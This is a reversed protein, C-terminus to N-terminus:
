KTETKFSSILNNLEQLENKSIESKQRISNFKDFLLRTEEETCGSKEALERYYIQPDQTTDIRHKTRIYDKFNEIKKLALDRFKNQELYLDAITKSYEYTQNKPPEVIPVPRQKRKGEFIIFLVAGILMFYYAWKLSKYSLLIYLPSTYFVKGAKYYQDWLIPNENELYALVGEAYEFNNEKLMFYNSFAQPTTHLFIKGEGRTAQLFNPYAESPESFEELNGVGLITHSLTDIKSFYVLPTEHDFIFPTEQQLDKNVLNLRPMSSFSTGPIRISTGVKLSDMLSESFNSASLFLTNGVEVWNLLKEVEAKDFGLSNNLFFYTGSPADNLFEFPPINIKEIPGASAEKWSEYFVFSGLAIKDSELYSPNWNIPEPESAELYTLILVLLLLAGFAFKGSNKM